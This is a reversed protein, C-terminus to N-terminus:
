LRMPMILYLTEADDAAHFTCSTNPDLLGLDITKSDCAKLAEMLYNVNFGIEIDEGSYDVEMEDNAHEQDPNHSAVKLTNKTLSLSVGGFKENSLIAARSLIEILNARDILVHKDLNAPIVKEYDPFRGDILKSIFMFNGSQVLIHSANLKFSVKEDSNADLFKAIELVAKRPVISQVLDIEPNNALLQTKALRHGDTAVSLIHDGHIELLLGNLFYRVDQQAMSFSTKTFLQNLQQQSISLEHKWSTEELRPFDNADLTQLSFRSKGAKVTMKNDGEMELSLSSEAPLSRCIDYLKRASVTTKGNSGSVNDVRTTIETELDSGVLTLKNDILELYVNGLIPLTQRKEVIGVIQSLPQELIEKIININM